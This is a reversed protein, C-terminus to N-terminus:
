AVGQRGAPAGADLLDSLDAVLGAPPRWAFVGCPHGDVTPVDCGTMGRLFLYAVGALHTDPEYGPLRWRLYRHLAAAYLLAQLPYHARMMAEALAAPRYHWASLEEGPVGLRNTKYDVVAFRPGPLRVVLDISGTLYGRLAGSPAGALAALREPYGALPDAPDLRRRLLGAISAVDVHGAPDRGGVLPLEFSLEDLRDPRTVQRLAVGDLLPGLPTELGRRLGAALDSADGVDLLRHELLRDIHGLLEADLDDAAFDAEELVAHVFTGFRVGGGAGALPCGVARLAAEVGAGDSPTAAAEGPAPASGVVAGVAAAVHHDEDDKVPEGPESGVAEHPRDRTIASYSHRRWGHDLARELSAADLTGAPLRQRDWTVAPPRAPVTEVGITGGSADALTGLRELTRDDDPLSPTGRTNVREGDDRRCFLVRALPSRDAYNAPAWWVVARHRARTLAVYLLRLDEGRQEAEADACHEAFAPHGHGGVDITRRESGPTHFVPVSRDFWPSTWLFPCYVIGFELGKSRHVTMVQVADADSELRRAREEAQTDEEAEAVQERLWSTLATVGMAEAREAAHLLEAVHALDTLTREGGARGLLRAPLRETAALAQWLSAVSRERLVGAWQHLRQHVGDWEADNATAVREADWGLFTTLVAPRARWPSSPRELARLLALWDEAAQTAFVSGVGNIVAPVGADRLHRQVLTADANRKVLVALDPPAVPRKRQGGGPVQELITAGSSLLTVIQGALDRAVHERAGDARLYRPPPDEVDRRVVRLCLAADGPAGRLRPEAHADAASVAEYAIGDHGLRAGAFLVNYADLLPADSRWNRTLGATAGAARKARLYAYVDAGRFSYIAQKPDGILVLPRDGGGFAADVIRWQIPDTDQFEDVLAVHYQHRLRRATTRAEADGGDLTDALRTLVDNFSLVGVTRKRRDVEARVKHAFRVRMAATPDDAPDPALDADPNGVVAHAIALADRRPLELDDDRRRHFRQVLLDDVVSEVLDREDEILTAARDADGSLGLSGLVHQCFGHITSITAADFDALALRLRDARARRDEPSGAALVAALPDGAPPPGGALVRDLLDASRVLRTRVRDRLEATAARTFTVVLLRPLPVGGAVYRVVLAEITYTKGTGASAELITVGAPLPGELKFPTM